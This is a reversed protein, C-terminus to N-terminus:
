YLSVATGTLRVEFTLPTTALPDPDEAPTLLM